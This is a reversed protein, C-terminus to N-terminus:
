QIAKNAQLMAARERQAEISQNARQALLVVAVTGITKLTDEDECAAALALLTRSSRPDDISPFPDGRFASTLAVSLELAVPDNKQEM